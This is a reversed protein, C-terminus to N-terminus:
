WATSLSCPCGKEQLWRLAALHGRQAAAETVSNDWPCPPVQNHAWELAELSGGRAAGLFAKTQRCGERRLWDVSR